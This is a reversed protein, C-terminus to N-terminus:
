LAQQWRLRVTMFVPVGVGVSEVNSAHHVVDISTLTIIDSNSHWSQWPAGTVSRLFNAQDARDADVVLCRSGEDTWHFPVYLDRVPTSVVRKPIGLGDCPQVSKHPSLRLVKAETRLYRLSPQDPLIDPHEGGRQSWLVVRTVNCRKCRDTLKPNPAGRRGPVEHLIM